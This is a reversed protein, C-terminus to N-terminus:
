PLFIRAAQLVSDTAAGSCAWAPRTTSVLTVVVSLAVVATLFFAIRFRLRRDGPEAEGGNGEQPSM